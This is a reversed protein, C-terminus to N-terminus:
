TTHKVFQNQNDRLDKKLSITNANRAYEVWGLKQYLAVNEPMLRHTNLRMESYNQRIAERESFAILETGLGKGGHKPHVALNALKMFGDQPVLFLAGAIDGDKIALWVKDQKIEDACGESVPPLDSIHDAYRAYAADICEVVADADALVAKRIRSNPTAM